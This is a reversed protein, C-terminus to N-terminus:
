GVGKMELYKDCKLKNKILSYNNNLFSPTCLSIRKGVLGQKDDTEIEKLRSKEFMYLVHLNTWGCICWWPLLVLHHMCSGPQELAKSSWLMTSGLRYPRRAGGPLHTM